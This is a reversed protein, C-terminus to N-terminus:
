KATDEIKCVLLGRGVGFEAIVHTRLLPHCKSSYATRFVSVDALYNGFVLWAHGDWTQDSKSFRVAGDIDSDDGFIRVGKVSFSGAVVYVPSKTVARIGVEYLASMMLCAGPLQPFVRLLTQGAESLDDLESAAPEFARYANASEAGYSEAILKGIGEFHEETQRGSM